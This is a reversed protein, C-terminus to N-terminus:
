REENISPGLKKVDGGDKRQPVTVPLKPGNILLDFFASPDEWFGPPRRREPEKPIKDLEEKLFEDFKDRIDEAKIEDNAILDEVKGAARAYAPNDGTLIARGNALGIKDFLTDRHEKAPSKRLGAKEEKKISKLQEELIKNRLQQEKLQENLLQENYAEARDNALLHNIRYLEGQYDYDSKKANAPIILLWCILLILIKM